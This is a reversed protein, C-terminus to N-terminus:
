RKGLRQGVHFIASPTPASQVLLLWYGALAGWTGPLLLGERWYRGMSCAAGVFKGAVGSILAGVSLRRGRSAGTRGKEYSVATHGSSATIGGCSTPAPSWVKPTLNGHDMLRAGIDQLSASDGNGSVEWLVQNYRSCARPRISPPAGNCGGTAKFTDSQEYDGACRYLM